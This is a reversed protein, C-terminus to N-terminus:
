YLRDTRFYNGKRDNEKGEKKNYNFYIMFNKIQWSNEVFKDQYCLIENSIYNQAWLLAYLLEEEGDIASLVATIVDHHIQQKIERKRKPEIM